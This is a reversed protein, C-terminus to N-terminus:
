SSWIRAQIAATCVDCICAEIADTDPDFSFSRWREYLHKINRGQTSFYGSFHQTFKHWSGSFQDMDLGHYWESALHELSHM